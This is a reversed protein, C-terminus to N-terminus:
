LDRQRDSPVSLVTMCTGWDRTKREGAGRVPANVCYLDTSVDLHKSGTDMGVRTDNAFWIAYFLVRTSHTGPWSFPLSGPVLWISTLLVRTRTRETIVNGQM